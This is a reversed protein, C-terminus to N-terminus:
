RRREACACRPWAEVARPTIRPGNFLKSKLDDAKPGTIEPIELGGKSLADTLMVAPGGAQTIIAINKGKLEKHMFISAMTTLEERGSCRVIGAKRFLAEVALDSSAIAATHSAAARSGAKSGGAKIAAIKCGKRVLSSAHELLSDPDRIGEIYLLKIKSACTSM